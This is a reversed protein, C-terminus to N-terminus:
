QWDRLRSSSSASQFSVRLQIAQNVRQHRGQRPGSLSGSPLSGPTAAARATGRERGLHDLFGVILQADLDAIDLDM